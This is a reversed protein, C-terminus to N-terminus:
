QSGKMLDPCITQCINVIEQEAVFQIYMIKKTTNQFALEISRELQKYAKVANAIALKLEDLTNAIDTFMIAATDVRLVAIQLQNQALNSQDLIKKNAKALVQQIRRKIENLTNVNVKGKAARSIDVELENLLKISSKEYSDVNKKIDTVIQQVVAAEADINTRIQGNNLIGQNLLVNFKIKKQEFFQNIGYACQYILENAAIFYKKLIDNIPCDKIRYTLNTPVRATIIGNTNNTNLLYESFSNPDTQVDNKTCDCNFTM